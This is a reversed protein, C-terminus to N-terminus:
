INTNNKIEAMTRHKSGHGINLHIENLICIMYNM